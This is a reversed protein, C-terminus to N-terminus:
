KKCLVVHVRIQFLTKSIESVSQCEIEVHDHPPVRKQEIPISVKYKNRCVAQRQQAKYKQATDPYLHQGNDCYSM